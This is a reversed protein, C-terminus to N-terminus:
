ASLVVPQAALLNLQEQYAKGKAPQVRLLLPVLPGSSHQVQRAAQLVRLVRLV